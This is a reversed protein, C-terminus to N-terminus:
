LDVIRNDTRNVPDYHADNMAHFMLQLHGDGAGAYLKPSRREASKRFHNQTLAVKYDKSLVSRSLLILSVYLSNILM